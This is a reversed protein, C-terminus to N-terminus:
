TASPLSTMVPPLWSGVRLTTDASATTGGLGLALAGLAAVGVLSKMLKGTIM